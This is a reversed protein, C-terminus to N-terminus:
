EITIGPQYEQISFLGQYLNDLRREITDIICLWYDFTSGNHNYVAKIETQELRQELVLIEARIQSTEITTM